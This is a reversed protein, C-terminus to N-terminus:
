LFYEPNEEKDFIKTTRYSSWIGSLTINFLNGNTLELTVPLYNDKNRVDIIEGMLIKSSNDEGDIWVNDVLIIYKGVMDKTINVNIPKMNKYNM